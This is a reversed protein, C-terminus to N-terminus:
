EWNGSVCVCHWRSGGEALLRQECLGGTDGNFAQIESSLLYIPRGLGVSQIIKFNEGRLPSCAEIQLVWLLFRLWLRCERYLLYKPLDAWDESDVLSPIRTRIYCVLSSYGEAM